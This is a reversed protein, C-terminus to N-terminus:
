AGAVGAERARALMYERGDLMDQPTGFGNMYHGTFGAGEIRKFMDGFDVTGTGPQMHIEYEGNNDAVRVEACRSMDMGDVFGAIGIPDYHAHNITFAWQLNPSQIQEFYTITDELTDPMYHVEAREPEGNLNELLLLAGQKEAYDATRQLREISAQMRIGRCSTFHYGGHVVIWEAGIRRSLDIYAKLYEDAADRVFPSIEAVNVGSLTHLGLHLGSKECAERIHTCRADDFSEFANPAVDTQIDVYHVDNEIAWAIGEEAAVRRGLDVGIRERLTEGMM